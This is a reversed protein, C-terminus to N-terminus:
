HQLATVGYERRGDKSEFVLFYMPHPLPVRTQENGTDVLLWRTAGVLHFDPSLYLAARAKNVDQDEILRDIGDIVM